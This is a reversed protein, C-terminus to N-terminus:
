AVVWVREPGIVGAKALLREESDDDTAIIAQGLRRLLLVSEALRLTFRGQVKSPKQLREADPCAM